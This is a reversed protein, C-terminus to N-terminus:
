KRAEQQMQELRKRRLEEIDDDTMKQYGELEADLQSEVELAAQLMQQEIMQQVMGEM